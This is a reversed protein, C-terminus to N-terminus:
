NSNVCLFRVRQPTRNHWNHPTSSDMHISDGPYLDHEEDGLLLTLVGELVYVFEQGKHAFPAGKEDYPLLTVLKPEMASHALDGSLDEYIFPSLHSRTPENSGRRLTTKPQAPEDAFFYSPSVELAESIKKLSELTISSKGREVQSLFSISLETKESIQKLTKKKGVRLAKILKGLNTDM